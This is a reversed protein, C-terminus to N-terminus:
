VASISASAAAVSKKPSRAISTAVLAALRRNPPSPRSLVWMKAQHPQQYGPAATHLGTSKGFLLPPWQSIRVGLHRETQHRGETIQGTIHELISLRRERNPAHHMNIAPDSTYGYKQGHPKLLSQCLAESDTAM